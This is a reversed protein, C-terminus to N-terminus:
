RTASSLIIMPAGHVSCVRVGLYPMLRFATDDNQTTKQEEEEESEKLPQYIWTENIRIFIPHIDFPFHFGTKVFSESQALSYIGTTTRETM